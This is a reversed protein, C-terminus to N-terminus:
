TIKYKNYNESLSGHHDLPIEGIIEKNEALKISIWKKWDEPDNEPFDLRDFFIWSNSAKRAKCAALIMDCVNIIDLVELARMLEHPNRATLSKAEMQKIESLAITGIDMLEQNKTDGCYDQMVKALGAALEKWDTGHERNVPAYVREKEKAIQSKDLVPEAAGKAYEAAHSGAWRGTSCAQAVGMGDYLQQGAAYLGEVSTKLSWDTILGGYRLRRWGLPAEALEYVQLMDKDPDYGARTLNRYVPWTHGEQGVMLGFIARREHEPVGPLDAYLPLTYEGKKIKEKLDPTLQPLAVSVDEKGGLVLCFFDNGPKPNARESFDTLVKGDGGVWPIEKGKADVISCPFWTAFSSGSGFMITHIGTSGGWEEHNSAEMRVFEAGAKWAMAFGNGANTPPGDRGVLGTHESSFIWVREPTAMCLICSKSKFVTFEGTRVNLGTAGVIKAGQVGNVTLLGTAMTREVINVGLKKCRKYLVPKMQTGWIRVCHKYVYDYAFVLKSEEDRFDAGKFVDDVDRIQMGMEELELLAEWSDKATIYSGIYNSYGGKYKQLPKIYDEPSIKSAPNSPCDMWHDIGSGAAGSHKVCGKDVLTVKLGKKAAAIAAFCGSVGGGLVLVDSEIENEEGYKIPYPWEMLKGSEIFHDQKKM